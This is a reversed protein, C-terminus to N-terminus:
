LTFARLTLNATELQKILRTFDRFFVYTYRDFLKWNPSDRSQEISTVWTVHTECRNRRQQLLKLSLFVNGAVHTRVQTVWNKYGTIENIVFNGPLERFLPCFHRTFVRFTLQKWRKFLENWRQLLEKEVRPITALRAIATIATNTIKM